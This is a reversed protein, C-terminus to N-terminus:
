GSLRQKMLKQFLLSQLPKICMYIMDVVMTTNMKLKTGSQVSTSEVRHCLTHFIFMSDYGKLSSRCVDTTYTDCLIIGLPENHHSILSCLQRILLSHRDKNDYYKFDITTLSGPDIREKQAGSKIIAYVVTFKCGAIVSKVDHICDSLFAAWQIEDEIESHNSFDFITEKDGSRVHLQGGSHKLPLCVLVYGVLNQLNGLNVPADVNCGPGYITLRYETMYVDTMLYKQIYYEIQHIFDPTNGDKTKLCFNFDTVNSYFEITEVLQQINLHQIDFEHSNVKLKYTSNGTIKERGGFCYNNQSHITNVLTTVDRCYQDYSNSNSNFNVVQGTFLASDDFSKTFKKVHPYIEKYIQVPDKMATAITRWETRDLELDICYIDEISEVRIKKQPPELICQSVRPKVIIASTQYLKVKTPNDLEYLNTFYIDSDLMDATVGSVSMIFPIKSDVSCSHQQLDQETFRYVLQELEVPPVRYDDIDFDPDDSSYYYKEQKKSTNEFITQILEVDFNSNASLGEYLISDSGKLNSRALKNHVYKHCLLIGITENRQELRSILDDLLAQQRLSDSGCKVQVSKVKHYDKRHEIPNERRHKRMISYTAVIQHGETVPKMEQVCDGFFAIWQIYQESHESFDYLTETTGSKIYWEGGKHKSPLCVILTGIMNQWELSTEAPNDVHSKVYSGTGYINFRYPKLETNNSVLYQSISGRISKLFKPVWKKYKHDYEEDDARHINFETAEVGNRIEPNLPTDCNEMLETVNLETLYSWDSWESNDDYDQKYLTNLVIRVGDHLEVPERGGVCYINSFNALKTYLLSLNSYYLNDNKLKENNNSQIDIFGVIVNGVLLENQKRHSITNYVRKYIMMEDELFSCIISLEDNNLRRLTGGNMRFSQQQQQQIRHNINSRHHM